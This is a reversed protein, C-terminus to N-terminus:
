DIKCVIAEIQKLYTSIDIVQGYKKLQDYIIRIRRQNNLFLDMDRQYDDYRNSRAKKRKVQDNTVVVYSVHLMQLKKEIKGLCSLPFGVKMGQKIENLKYDFIKHLIFADENMAVYFTGSKILVVEKPYKLKFELFVDYMM